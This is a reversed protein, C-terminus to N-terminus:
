KYYAMDTLFTQSIARITDILVNNLYLMWKDINNKTTEPFHDYGDIRLDVRREKQKDVKATIYLNQESFHVFACADNYTKDVGRYLLAFCESLHKDSLKYGNRDKISSIREGSGWVRIYEHKDDVLTIGWFRMCNDIMLRMLPIACSYNDDKTLTIFGRNINMARNIASSMFFFYDTNDYFTNQFEVVLGMYYEKSEELNNIYKKM